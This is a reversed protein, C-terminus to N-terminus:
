ELASFFLYMLAGVGVGLGIGWLPSLWVWGGVAALGGLLVGMIAGSLWDPLAKLGFYCLAGTVLWLGGVRWWSATLISPVLGWELLAGIGLGATIFVIFIQWANPHEEGQIGAGLAEKYKRAADGAAWAFTDKATLPSQGRLGRQYDDNGTM